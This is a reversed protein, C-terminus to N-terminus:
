WIGCDNCATHQSAYATCCRIALLDFLHATYGQSRVPEAAVQFFQHPTNAALMEAPRVRDSPEAEQTFKPLECLPTVAGVDLAPLSAWHQLCGKRMCDVGDETARTSLCCSHSLHALQEPSHAKGNSSALSHPRAFRRQVSAAEHDWFKEGSACRHPCMRLFMNGPQLGDSAPIGSWLVALSSPVIPQAM